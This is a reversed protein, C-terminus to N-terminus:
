GTRVNKVAKKLEGGAFRGNGAPTVGPSKDISLRPETGGVNRETKGAAGWEEEVMDELREEAAQAKIQQWATWRQASKEEAKKRRAKLIGTPVNSRHVKTM